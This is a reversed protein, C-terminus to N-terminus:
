GPAETADCLLGEPECRLVKALRTLEAPKPTLHGNELRSLRYPDVDALKAVDFQLLSLQMRRLKLTTLKM